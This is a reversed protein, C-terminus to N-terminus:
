QRSVGFHAWWWDGHDPIPQRYIQYLQMGAEKVLNEINVQNWRVSPEHPANDEVDATGYLLDAFQCLMEGKKSLKEKMGMIYDRTLDKTLHQFVIYCYVLDLNDPLDSKWSDALIPSFNEIGNLKLFQKAKELILDSVDIGWVHQVLPAIMATERGYGCGIVAVKKDTSLSTYNRIIEIDDGFSFLQGNRKKYCPHNEFYGQNQLKKWSEINCKM